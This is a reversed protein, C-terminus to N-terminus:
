IYKKKKQFILILRKFRNRFFVTKTECVCTIAMIRHIDSDM